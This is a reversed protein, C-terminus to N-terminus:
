PEEEEPEECVIACLEAEYAASIRGDEFHYNKWKYYLIPLRIFTNAIKTGLPTDATNVIAEFESPRPYM